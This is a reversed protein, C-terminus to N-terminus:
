GQVRNESRQVRVLLGALIFRHGNAFQSFFVEAEKLALGVRDVIRPRQDGNVDGSTQVLAQKEVTRAHNLEFRIEEAGRCGGVPTQDGSLLADSGAVDVFDSVVAM